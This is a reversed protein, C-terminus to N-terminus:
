ISVQVSAQYFGLLNHSFVLLHPPHAQMSTDCLPLFPLVKVLPQSISWRILRSTPPATTRALKHSCGYRRVHDLVSAQSAFLIFRDIAELEEPNFRAHVRNRLQLSLKSWEEKQRLLNIKLAIQNHVVMSSLVKNQYLGVILRRCTTACNVKRITGVM